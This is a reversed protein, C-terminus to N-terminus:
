AFWSEDEAADAPAAPAVPMPRPTVVKPRGDWLPWAEGLAALRRRCAEDDRCRWIHHVAESPLPPEYWALRRAVDGAVDHGCILCARDTM